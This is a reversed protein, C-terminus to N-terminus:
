GRRLWWGAVAVAAVIIAMIWFHQSERRKQAPGLLAASRDANLAAFSAACAPDRIAYTRPVTQFTTTQDDGFDFAKAVETQAPVRRRANSSWGARFCSWGALILGASFALLPWEGGPDHLWEGATNSLLFLGFLTLGIGPLALESLLASKALDLGDVPQQEAQHRAICPECFLPAAEDIRYHWGSDDRQNYMFVKRILLPQGAASGCNPCLPPHELSGIPRAIAVRNAATSLGEDGLQPEFIAMCSGGAFVSWCRM